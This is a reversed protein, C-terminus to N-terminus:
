LNKVQRAQRVFAEMTIEMFYKEGGNNNYTATYESGGFHAYLTHPADNTVKTTEKIKVGREKETYWGTFKYGTKVPTCLEGYNKGYIVEKTGTCAGEGTFGSDYTVTVKLDDPVLEFEGSLCKDLEEKTLRGRDRINCIPTVRVANNIDCDDSVVLIEPRSGITVGTNIEVVGNEIINTDILDEFALYIGKGSADNSTYYYAYNEGDYTIVVYVKDWTGFPSDHELEDKVCMYPVYYTTDTNQGLYLNKSSVLNRASAVFSNADAVYTNERSEGIISTVSPVALIMLIGIIVVVAIIEILTFGNKKM